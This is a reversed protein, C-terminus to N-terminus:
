MPFKRCRLSGHSPSMAQGVFHRQGQAARKVARGDEYLSTFRPRRRAGSVRYKVAVEDPTMSGPGAALLAEYTREVWAAKDDLVWAEKSTDLNGHHSRCPDGHQGPNFPIENKV